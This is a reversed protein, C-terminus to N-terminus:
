LFISNRPVMNDQYKFLPRALVARGEDDDGEDYAKLLDELAGAEESSGFEPYSLYIVPTYILQLYMM